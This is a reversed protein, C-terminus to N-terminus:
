LKFIIEWLFSSWHSSVYIVAFCMATKNSENAIPFQYCILNDRETHWQYSLKQNLLRTFPFRKLMQPFLTLFSGYCKIYVSKELVPQQLELFQMTMLKELLFWATSWVMCLKTTTRVFVLSTSWHFELLFLVKSPQHSSSINMGYLLDM